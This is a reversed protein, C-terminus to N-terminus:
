GRSKDLLENVGSDNRLSEEQAKGEEYAELHDKFYKDLAQADDTPLYNADFVRERTGSESKLTVHLQNREKDFKTIKYSRM